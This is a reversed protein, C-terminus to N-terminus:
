RKGTSVRVKRSKKIVAMYIYRERERYIYIYIYIAMYIIYIYIAMYGGVELLTARTLDSLGVRM